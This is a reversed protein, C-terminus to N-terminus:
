KILRCDNLGYAINNRISENFLLTEQTVIGILNRLDKISVKRIDNGDILVSGSSPDYFRPLLDVLTTKGARQSGCFCYGEKKYVLLLIM